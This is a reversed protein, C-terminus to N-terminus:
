GGSKVPTGFLSRGAGSSIPVLSGMASTGSARLLPFRNERQNNDVVQQSARNGQSSLPPQQGTSKTVAGYIREFRAIYKNAFQPTRSHYAGAAKSWDGLESYLDSLFRAAYEANVIPDFMEDISSFAAGHWKYNIQFCGVDFSRAGRKFHRFVYQRAEDETEFWVGKGEMNVTWPWPQLGGKRARGTESRTVALLVALPVDSNRAATRAAADCTDSGYDPAADAYTQFALM